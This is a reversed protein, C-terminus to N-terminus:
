TNKIFAISCITSGKAGGFEFSPYSIKQWVELSNTHNETVVSILEDETFNCSTIILLSQHHMMRMVQRPYVQSGIKGESGAVVHNNLAIADLTGKDFLVDFAGENESLYLGTPCLLDVTQFTFRQEPYKTRAVKSAFEVSEPSYDIGHYQLAADPAEETLTQYLEFLFHGNGTGLDLVVSTAYKPDQHVLQTFFDVM